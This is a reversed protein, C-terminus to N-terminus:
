GGLYAIDGFYRVATIREGEKGLGGIESVLKLEGGETTPLELILIQNETVFSPQPWAVSMDISPRVGDTSNVAGDTSNDVQSNGIGGNPEVPIPESVPIFGGDGWDSDYYVFETTSAVRLYGNYVSLAYSNLIYGPINTIWAPELTDGSVRYGFLYTTQTTGNAAPNYNWSEVALVLHGDMMYTHQSAWPSFTGAHNWSLEGAGINSLSFSHLHVFNQLYGNDYIAEIVTNTDNGLVSQMLTMRPMKPMGDRAIDDLLIGKADAIYGEAKLAAATRYQNDTMNQFEPLYLDLGMTVPWFNLNCNSVVHIDDGIMRADQYYGHVDKEALLNLNMDFVMIRTGYADYCM